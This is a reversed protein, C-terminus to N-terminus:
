KRTGIIEIEFVLPSYAPITNGSGQYGYGRDSIFVGVGKEGGKMGFITKSFGDVVSNDDSGMTIGTYEEAWTVSVPEYSRSASYIGHVKATDKITTDFVQGNLLRGTYNLYVTEDPSFSQPEDTEDLKLYYFGLGTSDPIRRYTKLLYDEVERIEWMRADKVAEVIEVTYICDNGSAKELYKEETDYREYTELWGPVVAKRVGGVKMTSMVADIGAQLNNDKRYFFYPGYYQSQSYTGVQQAVTKETTSIVNGDLDTSTYVARVFPYTESDHIEVGTGPKDEVIYIGPFTKRVDPYHTLVWADFYRKAAENKGITVPKACGGLVTAALAMVLLKKSFTM